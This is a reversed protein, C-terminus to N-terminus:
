ELVRTATALGNPLHTRGGSFATRRWISPLSRRRGGDRLADFGRRLSRCSQSEEGKGRRWTWRSSAPPIAPISPATPRSKRRRPPTTRSTGSVTSCGNGVARRRAASAAPRLDARVDPSLYLREMTDALPGSESCDVIIGSEHRRAIEAPGGQNAVIVPLGSSQAELVVNGFTDTTSPFVFGDASAFAAAVEKGHLLGTFVIPRGHVRAQLEERYPGDGVIALSADHGRDLFASFADVMCDLNKERSVRGVYLFCFREGLGFRGRWAPDRKEPHFMRTDVGRAM